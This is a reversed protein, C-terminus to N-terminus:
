ITNSKRGNKWRRAAVLMAKRVASLESDTLRGLHTVPRGAVSEAITLLYDRMSRNGGFKSKLYDPYDQKLLWTLRKEDGQELQLQWRFEEGILAEFHACAREFDRGGDCDSSTRHGTAVALEGQYWADRFAKDNAAHGLEECKLEWARAVLPRFWGQQQRSFGRRKPRRTSRSM